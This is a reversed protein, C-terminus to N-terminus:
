ISNFFLKNKNVYRIMKRNHETERVVYIYTLCYNM